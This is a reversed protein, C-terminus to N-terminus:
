GESPPGGTYENPGAKVCVGAFTLAGNNTFVRGYSRVFVVKETHPQVVRFVAQYSAKEKLCRDILAEMWERDEPHVFSLFGNMYDPQWSAEDAGFLEYMRTDWVLRDQSVEWWWVGVKAVEIAMAYIREQFFEETVENVIAVGGDKYAFVNNIVSVNRGSKTRLQCAVQHTESGLSQARHYAANHTPRYAPPMLIEPSQGLLESETYGSLRLFAPTVLSIRGQGDLVIVAADSKVLTTRLLTEEKRDQEVRLQEMNVFHFVMALTLLAVGILVWSLTRKKQEMTM